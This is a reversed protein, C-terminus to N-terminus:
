IKGDGPELCSTPDPIVLVDNTHIARPAHCLAITLKQASEDCSYRSGMKSHDMVDWHWCWCDSTIVSRIWVKRPGGRQSLRAIAWWWWSDGIRLPLRRLARLQRSGRCRQHGWWQIWHRRWSRLMPGTTLHYERSRLSGHQGDRWSQRARLRISM